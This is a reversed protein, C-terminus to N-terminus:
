SKNLASIWYTWIYGLYHELCNKSMLIPKKPGFKGGLRTIFMKPFTAWFVWNQSKEHIGSLWSVPNRWFPWFNFKGFKLWFCMDLSFITRSNTKTVWKLGLFSNPLSRFFKLIKVKIPMEKYFWDNPFDVPLYRLLGFDRNRAVWFYSM